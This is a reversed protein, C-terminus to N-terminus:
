YRVGSGKNQSYKQQEWFLKVFQSVNLNKNVVEEIDDAISSNITRSKSCIEKQMRAIVNELKKKIKRQKQLALLIKKSHTKSLSAKAKAPADIKPQSKKVPKITSCEKCINSLCSM